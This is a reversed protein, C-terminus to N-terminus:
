QLDHELIERESKFAKEYSLLNNEDLSLKLEELNDKHNALIIRVQESSLGQNKLLGEVAKNDPRPYTFKKFLKSKVPAEPTILFIRDNPYSAALEYAAKLHDNTLPGNSDIVWM